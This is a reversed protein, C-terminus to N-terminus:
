WVAADAENNLLRKTLSILRYSTTSIDYLRITGVMPKKPTKEGFIRLPKTKLGQLLESRIIPKTSISNGCHLDMSTVERFPTQHIDFAKWIRNIVEQNSRVHKGRSCVITGWLVYHLCSSCQFRSKKLEDSEVNGSDMLAQCSELSFMM